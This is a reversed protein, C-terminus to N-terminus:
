PTSAPRRSAPTPPAPTTTTASPPCTSRGCTPTAPAPPARTRSASTASCRPPRPGPGAWSAPNNPSAPCTLTAHALYPNRLALSAGTSVTGTYVVQDVVTGDAQTLVVADATNTLTFSSYQYNCPVGRNLAPDANRCLVVYGDAPVILSGGAPQITHSQPTPTTTDKLKWGALEVDTKTPNYIEVWEGYTDSVIDPDVMIENIILQQAPPACVTRELASTIRGTAAALVEPTDGLSSTDSPIGLDPGADKGDDSSSCGLALVFSAFVFALM